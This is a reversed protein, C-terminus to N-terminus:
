ATRSTEIVYEDDGSDKSRPLSSLRVDEQHGEFQDEAEEEEDDRLSQGM